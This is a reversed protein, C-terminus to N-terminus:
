RTSNLRAPNDFASVIASPSNYNALVIIPPSLPMMANTVVLNGTAESSATSPM